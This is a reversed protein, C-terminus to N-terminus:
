CNSISNEWKYIMKQNKQSEMAKGCETSSQDHKAWPFEDTDGDMDGDM